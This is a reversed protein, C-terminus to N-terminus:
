LCLGYKACNFVFVLHAWVGPVTVIATGLLWLAIPGHAIVALVITVLWIAALIFAGYLFLFISLSPAFHGIWLFSQPFFVTIPILLCAVVSIVFFSELRISLMRSFISV